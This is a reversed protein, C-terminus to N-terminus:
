PALKFEVRHAETVRRSADLIELKVETKGKESLDEGLLYYLIAGQPPNQGVSPRPFGGGAALVDVVPRPTFLHSRASAVDATMQRLPSLDDLIWYSRGQTAVVLDDRYVMLDTVPTRPLNLQFPQWSAGDDTSRYLAGNATLWLRRSAVPSLRDMTLGYLFAPYPLGTSSQSWTDGSNTSRYVHYLYPAKSSEGIAAWVVGPRASDAVVATVNGGVGNWDPLVPNIM